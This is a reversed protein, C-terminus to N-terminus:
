TRHAPGNPQARLWDLADTFRDMEAVYAKSDIKIEEAYHAHRLGMAQAAYRAGRFYVKLQGPSLSRAGPEPTGKEPPEQKTPPLDLRRVAELVLNEGPRDAFDRAVFRFAEEQAPTVLVVSPRAIKREDKEDAVGYPTIAQSRDPDSLYPFPLSLKEVMAANRGPSDVSIAFVRAGAVLIDQHHM